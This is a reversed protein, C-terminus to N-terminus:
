PGVAFTSELIETAVGSAILGSRAPTIADWSGDYIAYSKAWRVDGVTPNVEHVQVVVKTHPSVDQLYVGEVTKGFHSLSDADAALEANIDNLVQMEYSTPM